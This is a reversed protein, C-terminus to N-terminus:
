RPDEVTGVRARKAPEDITQWMRPFCSRKFAEQYLNRHPADTLAFHGGGGARLAAKLAGELEDVSVVPEGGADEEIATHVYHTGRLPESSGESGCECLIAKATWDFRQLTRKALHPVNSVCDAKSGVVVIAGTDGAVFGEKILRTVYGTAFSSPIYETSVERMYLVAHIVGGGEPGFNRRLEDCIRDLTHGSTPVTLEVYNIRRLCKSKQLAEVCETKGSGADGIVIVNTNNLACEEGTPEM